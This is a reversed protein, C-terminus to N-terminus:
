PGALRAEPGLARCSRGGTNRPINPMLHTHAHIHTRKILLANTWLPPWCRSARATSAKPAIQKATEAATGQLWSTVHRLTWHGRPGLYQCMSTSGVWVLLSEYSCHPHIPDRASPAGILRKSSVEGRIVSGTLQRPLAEYRIAVRSKGRLHGSCWCMGCPGQFLYVM